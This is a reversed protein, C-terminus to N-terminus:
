EAKVQKMKKVLDEFGEGRLGSVGRRILGSSVAEMDRTYVANILALSCVFVWVDGGKVGKWWGRKRGVKWLSDMSARASYLFNGRGTERELYSWLGGLFGGIFFRQTPLVHRPLVSQFLCIAAWSSGISGAIFTSMRLVRRALSDLTSIPRNYFSKYKPISLVSFLIFFFKTLRPFVRIWYTVYTRLCSPDHPHL